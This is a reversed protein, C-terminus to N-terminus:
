GTRLSLPLREQRRVFLSNAYRPPDDARLSISNTRALLEELVIRTELRAVPAGICFHAGRGFGLHQKPYRRELDLDDPASIVSEDRNASAWLLFLRDGPGLSVGGLTCARRVARYHGKFPPELRVVEEVYRPILDPERRLRDALDPTEALLRAANGILAATSEGGAGFMVVAIGIAEETNVKGLEVGRALTSLMPANPADREPAPPAAALHERLYAVMAGVQTALRGMGEGDITGALMDGGMMAWPRLLPADTKPLGLLRAVALAPVWEAVPRMFEGGGQRCLPELATSTWERIPREMSAVVSASLRPQVLARHVAHAPEDATAIVDTAGTSPLDFAHPRKEEDEILVGTLNASFDAERELAEEILPWTAVLFVRSDAVESIPAERRLKAFYPHPNEITERSLLPHPAFPPGPMAGHYSGRSVLVLSM